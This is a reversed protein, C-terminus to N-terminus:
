SADRVEVSIKAGLCRCWGNDDDDDDYVDDDCGCHDGEVSNYDGDGDDGNDGNDDDVQSYM